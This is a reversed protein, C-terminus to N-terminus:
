ASRLEEDIFDFVEDASASRMMQAVARGDQLSREEGLGSLIAQLRLAIRARGADAAPLSALRRELADLEPDSPAAAAAGNSHLEALLYEGLAAPTPYDFILTAPLALGTAVNLLNRFEVAALSDFGLEKFTQQAEVAARSGHGLVMAAQACVADQVVHAREHEPVAALRKVLSEREGTDKRSPLRVLGSLMRPLTGAKAQARLATADIGMAVILAEESAGVADFLEFAEGPALPAVGSRTSRAQEVDGLRDAMGDAQEWPGWAISVAALGRARRHAALADM